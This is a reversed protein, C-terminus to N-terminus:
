RLTLSGTTMFSNLQIGDIAPDATHSYELFDEVNKNYEAKYIKHSALEIKFELGQVYVEIEWKGEEKELDLIWIFQHQIEESAQGSYSM